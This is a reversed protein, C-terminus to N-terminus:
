NSRFRSKDAQTPFLLTFLLPYSFCLLTITTFFSFMCDMKWHCPKYLKNTGFKSNRLNWTKERRCSKEHNSFSCPRSFWFVFRTYYFITPLYGIPTSSVKSLIDLALVSLHSSIFPLSM